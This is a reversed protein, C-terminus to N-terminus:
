WEQHYEWMMKNSLMYQSTTEFMDKIKWKMYPNDDQGNVFEMM